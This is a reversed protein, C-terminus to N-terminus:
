VVVQEVKEELTCREDQLDSWEQSVYEAVLNQLSDSTIRDVPVEVGTKVIDM